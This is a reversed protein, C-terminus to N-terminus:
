RASATQNQPKHEQALIKKLESAQEIEATVAKQTEIFSALTAGKLTKGTPLKLTLPNVQKGNRLVEYHLHAATVRGTAGAYGIIQGQKVRRGKKIGKGYRSLHAYATKYSGNHRIRIYNGYSGNRASMEIIGDGAAMIPTGTRARFDTGKHMRTYGLVPHKRLGYSDTVVVVDLPTKMLARRTSEGKLDYYGTDGNEEQYYFANLTRKRLGIKASLIHLNNIDKYSPAYEREYYVEFTDGIRIEREFDVDFSMMRILDIIVKDPLGARKSSLYLSDKITGTVLHSLKLTAIAERKASYTKDSLRVVAEEAFTDRIRIEQIVADKGETKVLQIIQGAKLKRLDTIKQLQAVVTHANKTSIDGRKMLRILTEGRKLKYATDIYRPEITETQANASDELAEANVLSDETSNEISAETNTSQDPPSDPLNLIVIGVLGIGAIVGFAAPSESASFLKEPEIRKKLSTVYRIVQKQITQWSPM